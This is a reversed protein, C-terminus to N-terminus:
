QSNIIIATGNQCGTFTSGSITIAGTGSELPYSMVTPTPTTSTESQTPATKRDRFRWVFRVEPEEFSVRMARGTALQWIGCRNVLVGSEITMGHGGVVTAALVAAVIVSRM